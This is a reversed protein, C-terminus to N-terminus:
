SGGGRRGCTTLVLGTPGGLDGTRRRHRLTPRTSPSPEVDGLGRVMRSEYRTKGPKRNAPCWCSPHRWCSPPLDDGVSFL